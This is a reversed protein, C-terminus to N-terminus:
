RGSKQDYTYLGNQDPQQGLQEDTSVELRLSLWDVDDPTNYVSSVLISWFM